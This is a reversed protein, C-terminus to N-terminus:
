GKGNGRKWKQEDIETFTLLIMVVVGAGFFAGVIFAAWESMEGEGRAAGM